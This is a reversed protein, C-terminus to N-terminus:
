FHDEWLKMINAAGAASKKIGTRAQTRVRVKKNAIHRLTIM